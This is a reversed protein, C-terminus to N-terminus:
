LTRITQIYTHCFQCDTLLRQFREASFQKIVPVLTALSGLFYGVSCKIVAQVKKSRLFEWYNTCVRHFRRSAQNESDDLLDSDQLLPTTDTAKSSPAASKGPLGLTYNRDRVRAGTAPIIVSAKRLQAVDTPLVCSPLTCVMAPREPQWDQTVPEYSSSAMSAAPQPSSTSGAPFGAVACQLLRSTSASTGFTM